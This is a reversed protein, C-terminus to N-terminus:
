NSFDMELDSHSLKLAKIAQNLDKTSKNANESINEEKVCEKSLAIQIYYDEIVDKVTCVNKPTMRHTRVLPPESVEDLSPYIPQLPVTKSISESNTVMEKAYDLSTKLNDFYPEVSNWVFPAIREVQESLEHKIFSLKRKAVGIAELLQDNPSLISMENSAM